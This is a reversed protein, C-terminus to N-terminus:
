LSYGMEKIWKFEAATEGQPKYELGIWGNYGLEELLRFIYKYNIEGDSAPHGRKPTQAVQIHGIFPFYETIRRSLNGSIVQLHYVDLQLKLHPSNIKKILEVARDFDNLVYEPVDYKNIPEIVGVIGEEQLRKAAHRFNDEMVSFVADDRIQKVDKGSM